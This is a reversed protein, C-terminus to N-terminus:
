ANLLFYALTSIATLQGASLGKGSESGAPVLSDIGMIKSKLGYAAAYGPFNLRYFDGAEGTIEVTGGLPVTGIINNSFYPASRINLQSEVRVVRGYTPGPSMHQPVVSAKAREDLQAQIQLAISNTDIAGRIREELRM